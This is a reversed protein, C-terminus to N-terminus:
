ILLNFEIIDSEILKQLKFAKSNQSIIRSYAAADTGNIKSRNCIRAYGPPSPTSSLGEGETALAHAHWEDTGEPQLELLGDHGGGTYLLRVGDRGFPKVRLTPPPEAEM